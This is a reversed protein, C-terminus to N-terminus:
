IRFSERLALWKLYWLRRKLKKREIFLDLMESLDEFSVWCNEDYLDLINEYYFRDDEWYDCDWWKRNTYLGSIIEMILSTWNDSYKDNFKEIELKLIELKTKINHYEIIYKEKM